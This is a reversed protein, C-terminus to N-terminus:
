LLSEKFSMYLSIYLSVPFTLRIFFSQMMEFCFLCGLVNFMVNYAGDNSTLFDFMGVSNRTVAPFLLVVYFFYVM